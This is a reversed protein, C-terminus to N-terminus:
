GAAWISPMTICLIQKMPLSHHSCHRQLKHLNGGVNHNLHTPLQTSCSPFRCSVMRLISVQSLYCGISTPIPMPHEIATQLRSCKHFRLYDTHKLHPVFLMENLSILHRFHCLVPTTLLLMIRVLAAIRFLPLAMEVRMRLRKVLVILEPESVRCDVERAIGIASRANDVSQNYRM